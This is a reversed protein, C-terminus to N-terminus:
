ALPRQSCRGRMSMRELSNPPYSISYQYWAILDPRTVTLPEWVVGSYTMIFLSRTTCRVCLCSGGTFPTTCSTPSVSSKIATHLGAEMGMCGQYPITCRCTCRCTCRWTCWKITDQVSCYVVSRQHVARYGYQTNKV